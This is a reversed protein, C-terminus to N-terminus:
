QCYLDVEQEGADNDDRCLKGDNEREADLQEPEVVLHRAVAVLRILQVPDRQWDRIHIGRM